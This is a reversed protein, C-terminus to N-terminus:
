VLIATLDVKYKEEIIPDEDRYSSREDKAGPPYNPNAVSCGRTPCLRDMEM